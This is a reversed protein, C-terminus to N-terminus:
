MWVGIISLPDTEDRPIFHMGATHKKIDRQIEVLFRRLVVTNTPRPGDFVRAVCHGPFDVPSQYVTIMPCVLESLDVKEMSSVIITREM